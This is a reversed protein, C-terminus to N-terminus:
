VLKQIALELEAIREELLNLVTKTEQTLAKYDAFGTRWFFSTKVGLMLNNKLNVISKYIREDIIEKNECLLIFLDGLWWQVEEVNNSKVGNFIKKM